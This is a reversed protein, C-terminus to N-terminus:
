RVRNAIQSLVVDYNDMSRLDGYLKGKLFGPLEVEDLLIPVVKIRKGEIEQNMAIDLEKAVWRSNISSRSVLAIVYDVIDIAECIKEILSEGLKMEREDLWVNIGKLALDDALKRAIPKDHWNHSLFIQHRTNSVKFVLGIYDIDWRVNNGIEISVLQELTNELKDKLLPWAYITQCYSIPSIDPLNPSPIRHFYDSHNLPKVRLGFGDVMKHNMSIKVKSDYIWSHLGGFYRLCAVVLYGSDFHRLARADLPINWTATTESISEMGESDAAGLIATSDGSFSTLPHGNPVKATGVIGNVLYFSFGLIISSNWVAQDKSYQKDNERSFTELEELTVSDIGNKIISKAFLNDIEKRSPARGHTKVFLRRMGERYAQDNAQLPLELEVNNFQDTSAVNYGETRTSDTPRVHLDVMAEAISSESQSIANEVKRIGEHTLCVLAPFGHSWLKVQILGEGELYKAIERAQNEEGNKLGIQYAVEGGNIPDATNGDAIEYIKNIFDLRLQQKKKLTKNM